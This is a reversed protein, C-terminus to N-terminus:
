DRSEVLRNHASVADLLNQNPQPPNTLANLFIEADRSTLKLVEMSQLVENARDVAAQVIFQNISAGYLAAAREIILRASSPVRATIREDAPERQKVKAARMITEEM